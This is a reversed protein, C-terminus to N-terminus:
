KNIQIIMEDWNTKKAFQTAQYENSQVAEPSVNIAMGQANKENNNIRSILIVKNLSNRTKVIQEKVSNDDIVTNLRQLLNHMDRQGGLDDEDIRMASTGQIAVKTAAKLNPKALIMKSLNNLETTLSEMNKTKYAAITFVNPLKGKRNQRKYLDKSGKRDASIVVERALDEVTKASSVLKNINKTYLMGTLLTSDQSGVVYDASDKIEYLVEVAGMLCADLNLLDVKGVSDKIAKNLNPISVMNESTDDRVVGLFAGGHTNIDLIKWESKYTSFGWKTFARLTRFDGSNLEKKFATFPSVMKSMDNDNIVLYRKLDKDDAGDTQLAINLVNTTGSLEHFNIMQRLEDRYGGKDNDFGMYSLLTAKKAVKETPLKSVNVGWETEGLTNSKIQALLDPSVVAPTNALSSMYDNSQQLSPDLEQIDSSCSVMLSTLLSLTLVKAITKTAM